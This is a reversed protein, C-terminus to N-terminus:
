KILPRVLPLQFLVIGEIPISLEEKYGLIALYTHQFLVIGEIPISLGQRVM